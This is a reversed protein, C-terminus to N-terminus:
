RSRDAPENGDLLSFGYLWLAAKEDEGLPAEVLVQQDLEELTLKAALGDVVRARYDSFVGDTATSSTTAEQRTCLRRELRALAARPRDGGSRARGAFVHSGAAFWAFPIM